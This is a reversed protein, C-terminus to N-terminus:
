HSSSTAILGLYDINLLQPQLLAPLYRGLGGGGGGKALECESFDLMYQEQKGGRQVAQLM